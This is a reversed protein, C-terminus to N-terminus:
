AARRVPGHERSCEEAPVGNFRAAQEAQAARATDPAAAVVIHKLHVFPRAPGERKPEGRLYEPLCSVHLMDSTTNQGHLPDFSAEADGVAVLRAPLRDLPEFLRWRDDPQRYSTPGGILRGRV